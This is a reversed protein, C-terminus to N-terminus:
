KSAVWTNGINEGSSTKLSTTRSESPKGFNRSSMLMTDSFIVMRSYYPERLYRSATILSAARSSRQRSIARVSDGILPPNGGSMAVVDNRLFRTGGPEPPDNKADQWYRLAVPGFPTRIPLRLPVDVSVGYHSHGFHSIKTLAKAESMLPANENEFLIVYGFPPFAIDAFIHAQQGKVVDILLQNGEMRSQPLEYNPTPPNLYVYVDFAMPLHREDHNQIFRRLFDNIYHPNFEVTALAMTIIQKLVQLPQIRFNCDVYGTHDASVKDALQLGQQTWEFFSQGYHRQTLQQCCESLTKHVIGGPNKYAPPLRTKSRNHVTIWDSSNYRRYRNPVLKQVRLPPVHENTLKVGASGCGHCTGFVSESM